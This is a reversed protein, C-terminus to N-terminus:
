KESFNNVFIEFVKRGVTVSKDISLGPVKHHNFVLM